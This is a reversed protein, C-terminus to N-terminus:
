LGMMFLYGLDDFDPIAEHGFDPYIVVEKDAKIKNYMAFQSSPPCIEDMLGCGMMVKAKIRHALFQLDIYGLTTFVEAEKEHRPDFKKFWYQLEEYADRGLDM